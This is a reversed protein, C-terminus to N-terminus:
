MHLTSLLCFGPFINCGPPCCRPPPPLRTSFTPVNGRNLHVHITCQSQQVQYSHPQTNQGAPLGDLRQHRGQTM